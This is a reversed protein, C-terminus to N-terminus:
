DERRKILFDRFRFGSKETIEKLELQYNMRKRQGYLRIYILRVFTDGEELPLESATMVTRDGLIEDVYEEIREPSLIRGLKELMKRRKEERLEGDAQALEVPEPM